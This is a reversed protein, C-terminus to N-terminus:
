YCSCFIFFTLLLIIVPHYLNTVASFRTELQQNKRCCVSFCNFQSQVTALINAIIFQKGLWEDWMHYLTHVTRNISEHHNNWWFWLHNTDQPALYLFFLTRTSFNTNLEPYHVCDTLLLKYCGLIHCYDVVLKM